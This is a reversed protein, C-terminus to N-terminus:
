FLYKVCLNISRGPACYPIIKLFSMPDVYRENFLNSANLQLKWDRMEYNVGISTLWYEYNKKTHEDPYLVRQYTTGGFLSCKEGRSNQFVQVRIKSGMKLPPVFPILLGESQIDVMSANLQFQMTRKTNFYSMMLEAGKSIADNASYQYEPAGNMLQGTPRLSIFRSCKSYFLNVYGEFKRFILEHSLEINGITESKLGDFGRDYRFADESIGDVFLEHFNPNRSGKSLSIRTSNFKGHPYQASLGLLPRLTSKLSQNKLGFVRTIAGVNFSLGWNGLKRQLVGHFGGDGSVYNPIVHLEGLNFNNQIALQELFSATWNSNLSYSRCFRQQATSLQMALGDVEGEEIELRTNSQVGCQMVSYGSKKTTFSKYSWSHMMVAHHPAEFDRPEGVKLELIELSDLARSVGTRTFSSRYNIWIQKKGLNRYAGWKMQLGDNRTNLVAEGNAEHYDGFQNVVIGFWSARNSQVLERQYVGQVGLNSSFFRMDVQQHLGMKEPLVTEIQVLGGMADGGALIASPGLVVSLKDNAFPGLALGHEDQWQQNDLRLGDVMIAVRSGSFGRLVPRTLGPGMSSVSVGPIEAVQDAVQVGLEASGIQSIERKRIGPLDIEQVQGLIVPELRITDSKLTDIESISPGTNNVRVNRLEFRVNACDSAEVGMLDSFPAIGIILAFCLKVNM